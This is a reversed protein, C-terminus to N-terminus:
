RPPPDGPLPPEGAWLEMYYSAVRRVTQQMVYSDTRVRSLVLMERLEPIFDGNAKDRLTRVAVMWASFRISVDAAGEYRPDQELSANNVSTIRDIIDRGGAVVYPVLAPDPTAVEGIFRM